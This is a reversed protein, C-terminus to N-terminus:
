SFGQAPTHPRADTSGFFNRTYNDSGIVLAYRSGNCSKSPFCYHRTGLMPGAGFTDSFHGRSRNMAAVIDEHVYLPVFGEDFGGRNISGDFSDFGIVLNHDRSEGNGDRPRGVDHVGIDNLNDEVEIVVRQIERAGGNGPNTVTVCSDVRAVQLM